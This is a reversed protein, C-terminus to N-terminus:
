RKNIPQGAEKHWWVTILFVLAVVFLVCKEFIVEFSVKCVSIGSAVVIIRIQIKISINFNRYLQM